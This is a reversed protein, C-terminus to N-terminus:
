ALISRSTCGSFFRMSAHSLTCMLPGPLVSRRKEILPIPTTGHQPSRLMGSPSHKVAGTRSLTSPMRCYLVGVSKLPMLKVFMPSSNELPRMTFHQASWFWFSSSAIKSVSSPARWM